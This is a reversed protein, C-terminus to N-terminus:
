DSEILLAIKQQVKTASSFLDKIYDLKGYLDPTEDNILSDVMNEMKESLSRTTDLLCRCFIFNAIYDVADDQQLNEFVLDKGKLKNIIIDQYKGFREKLEGICNNFEEQSIDTHDEDWPHEEEPLAKNLEKDPCM